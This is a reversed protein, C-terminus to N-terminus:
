LGSKSKQRTDGTGGGGDEFGADSFKGQTLDMERKLDKVM